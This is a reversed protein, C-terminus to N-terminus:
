IKNKHKTSSLIKLLNLFIYFPVNIQILFDLMKQTCALEIFMKLIFKRIDEHKNLIM